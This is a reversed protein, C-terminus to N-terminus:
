KATVKRKKSSISAIKRTNSARPKKTEKGDDEDGSEGDDDEIEDAKRKKSGAVATKISALSKKAKKGDDEEEESQEEDEEIEEAEAKRKKGGAVIKRPSVRPKKTVKKGEDEDENEDDNVEIVEAKRKKGKAPAPAPAPTTAKAKPKAKAKAKGKGKKDKSNDAAVAATTTTNGDADDDNNDNDDTAVPEKKIAHAKSLPALEEGARNIRKWGLPAAKSGNKCCKHDCSTGKPQCVGTHGCDWLGNAHQRSVKDTSTTTSTTTSITAKASKSAAPKTTKKAKAAATSSSEAVTQDNDDGEVVEAEETNGEEENDSAVQIVPSKTAKSQSKAKIPKTPRFLPHAVFIDGAKPNPEWGTQEGRVHARIRIDQEQPDLQAVPGHVYAYRRQLLDISHTLLDGVHEIHNGHEVSVVETFNVYDGVELSLTSEETAEAGLFQGLPGSSMEAAQSDDRYNTDDGRDIVDLTVPDDHTVTYADVEPDQPDTDEPYDNNIPLVVMRNSYIAVVIAFSSPLRLTGEIRDDNGDTLPALPQPARITLFNSNTQLPIRIIQGVSWKKWTAEQEVPSSDHSSRGALLNPEDETQQTNNTQKNSRNSSSM